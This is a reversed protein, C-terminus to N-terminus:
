VDSMATGENRRPERELIVWVLVLVLASLLLESFDIITLHNRM